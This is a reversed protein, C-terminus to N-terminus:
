FVPKQLYNLDNVTLPRFYQDCYSIFQAIPIQNSPAKVKSYDGPVKVESPVKVIKPPPAEVNIIGNAHVSLVNSGDSVTALPKVNETIWEKLIKQNEVLIEQKKTTEQIIKDLKQALAILQSSEPIESSVNLDEAEVNLQQLDLPPVPLNTM